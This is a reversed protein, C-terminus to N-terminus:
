SAGATDELSWSLWVDGKVDEGTPNKGPEGSVKVFISPMGQKTFTASNPEAPVGDVQEFGAAQMTATVSSWVQDVSGDLYELSLGRRKTGNQSAYVRDRAVRFPFDFRISADPLPSYFASELCPEAPAAAVQEPSTAAPTADQSAVNPDKDNCGALAIAMLGSVLITRNM